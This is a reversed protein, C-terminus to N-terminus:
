HLRQHLLNVMGSPDCGGRLSNIVFEALALVKWDPSADQFITFGLYVPKSLLRSVVDDEIEM